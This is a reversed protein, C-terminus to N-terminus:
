LGPIELHSILLRYFIELSFTHELRHPRADATGDELNYGISLGLTGLSPM